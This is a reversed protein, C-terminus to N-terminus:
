QLCDYAIQKHFTARLVIISRQFAVGVLGNKRIEVFKLLKAFNAKRVFIVLIFISTVM